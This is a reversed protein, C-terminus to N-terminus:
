ALVNIESYRKDETFVLATLVRAVAEECLDLEEASLVDRWRGNTGKFFFVKAEPDAKEAVNRM